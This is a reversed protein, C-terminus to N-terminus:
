NIFAIHYVIKVRKFLFHELQEFITELIFTNKYISVYQNYKKADFDPTQRVNAFYTPRPAVPQVNSLALETTYPSTLLIYVFKHNTHRFDGRHDSLLAPM